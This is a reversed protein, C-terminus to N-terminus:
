NHFNYFDNNNIFCLIVIYPSISRSLLQKYESLLLILILNFPHHPPSGTNSSSSSTSGSGSGSGSGSHSSNSSSGSGNDSSRSGGNDCRNDKTRGDESEGEDDMRLRSRSRAKDMREIAGQNQGARTQACVSESVREHWDGRGRHTHACVAGEM